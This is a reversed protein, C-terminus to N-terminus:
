TDRLAEESCANDLLQPLQYDNHLLCRPDVCNSRARLEVAPMLTGTHGGLGSPSSSQSIYECWLTCKCIEARIM